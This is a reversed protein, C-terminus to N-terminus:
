PAYHTALYGVIAQADADSLPAGFVKIMKTVVGQWQAAPGKPQMTIYDLSHCVACQTQTADVGTGPALAIQDQPLTISVTEGMAVTAVAMVLLMTLLFRLM